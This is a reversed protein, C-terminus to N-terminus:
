RRCNRPAAAAEDNANVKRGRRTQTRVVPEVDGPDADAPFPGTFDFVHRLGAAGKHRQAVHVLAPRRSREAVKRFGFAVGIEAHHQFFLFADVRDRDARRVVGM